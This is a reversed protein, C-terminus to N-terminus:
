LARMARITVEVDCPDADPTVCAGEDFSSFSFKVNGDFEDINVFDLSGDVTVDLACIQGSDGTWPDIDAYTGLIVFAHEPHGDLTATQTGLPEPFAAEQDQPLDNRAPLFVTSAWATEAGGPMVLAAWTGDYCGDSVTLSTFNFEDGSSNHTDSDTDSDSDSDTDSDSDSDTDVDADGGVCDPSGFCGDDLCDFLGDEDNDAGDSCDGGTQGEPTTCAVAFAALWAIKM